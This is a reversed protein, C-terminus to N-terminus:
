IIVFLKNCFSRYNIWIIRRNFISFSAKLDELPVKTIKM